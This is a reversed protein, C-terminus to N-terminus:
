KEWWGEAEKLASGAVTVLPTMREVTMPRSRVALLDDPAKGECCEGRIKDRKVDVFSIRVIPSGERIMM